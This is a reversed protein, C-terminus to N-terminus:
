VKDLNQKGTRNEVVAAMVEGTCHQCSFVLLVACKPQFGLNNGLVRTVFGNLSFRFFDRIHSKGIVNPPAPNEM